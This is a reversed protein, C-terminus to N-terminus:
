RMKRVSVDISPSTAPPSSQVWSAKQFRELGPPGPLPVCGCLGPQVADRDVCRDGVLPPLREAFDSLQDAAEAPRHFWYCRSSPRM